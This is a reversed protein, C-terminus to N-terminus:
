IIWVLLLLVASSVALGKTVSGPLKQRGAGRYWGSFQWVNRYFLFILILNGALALWFRVGELVEGMLAQEIGFLISLGLIAIIVIRILELAAGALSGM